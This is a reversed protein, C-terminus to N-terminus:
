KAEDKGNLYMSFLALQEKTTNDYSFYPIFIHNKDYCTQKIEHIYEEKYRKRKQFFSGEEGEPLVRNVILTEVHLNYQDLMDIAHKTEIIPLREPNLVFVFGTQKDDL